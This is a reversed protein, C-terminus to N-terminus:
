TAAAHHVPAFFLVLIRKKKEELRCSDGLPGLVGVIDVMHGLASGGGGSNGRGTLDWMLKKHSTKFSICGRRERSGDNLLRIILWFKAYNTTISM